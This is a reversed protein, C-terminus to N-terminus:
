VTCVALATISAESGVLTRTVIASATWESAGSPFSDSSRVRSQQTQLSEDLRYGGGLVKTGSPCTAIASIVTGGPANFGSSVTASTVIQSNSPGPPGPPGQAGPAGQAGPPGQAGTDGKSGQPGAAGRTLSWRRTHASIDQTRM